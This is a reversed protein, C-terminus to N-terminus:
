RVDARANGVGKLGRDWDGGIGSPAGWGSLLAMPKGQCGTSWGHSLARAGIPIGARQPLEPELRLERRLRVRNKVNRFVGWMSVWGVRFVM